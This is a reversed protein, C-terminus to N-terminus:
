NKTDTDANREGSKILKEKPTRRIPIEALQNGRNNM